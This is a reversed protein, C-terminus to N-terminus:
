LKQAVYLRPAAPGGRRHMYFGIQRFILLM